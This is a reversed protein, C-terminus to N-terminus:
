YPRPVFIQSDLESVLRRAAGPPGMIGALELSIRMRHRKNQLLEVLCASVRELDLPGQLEPTIERGARANAQAYYTMGKTLRCLVWRKLPQGLWRSREIQGPLGTLLSLTPDFPAIVLHPIGLAAAEGTNTGPTSVLMDASELVEERSLLPLVLGQPTILATDKGQYVLRVQTQSGLAVRLMADDVLPSRAIVFRVTTVKSTVTEAIPGIRRLSNRLQLIRSGPLLGVIPNTEM